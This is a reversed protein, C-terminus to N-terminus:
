NELLKQLFSNMITLQAMIMAAIRLWLHGLMWRKEVTSRTSCINEGRGPSQCVESRNPSDLFFDRVFQGHFKGDDSHSEMRIPYESSKKPNNKSFSTPNNNPYNGERFDNFYDMFEVFDHSYSKPYNESDLEWSELSRDRRSTVIM